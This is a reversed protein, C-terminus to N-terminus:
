SSAIERDQQWGGSGEGKGIKGEEEGGGGREMETWEEYDVAAGPDFGCVGARHVHLM